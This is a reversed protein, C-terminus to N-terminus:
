YTIEPWCKSCYNQAPNVPRMDGCGYMEECSQPNLCFVCKRKYPDYCKFGKACEKCLDYELQKKLYEDCIEQKCSKKCDMMKGKKLYKDMENDMPTQTIKYDSRSIYIIFILIFIILLMFIFTKPHKM